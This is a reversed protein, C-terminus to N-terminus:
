QFLRKIYQYVYSPYSNWNRKPELEPPIHEVVLPTVGLEAEVEKFSPYIVHTFFSYDSPVYSELMIGHVCLLAWVKKYQAYIDDRHNRDIWESEDVYQVNPLHIEKLLDKHFDVVSNGFKTTIEHLPKGNNRNFDILTFYEIIDDKNGSVGKLVPLKGLPLKLENNTSFKSKYDEGVVLPLDYQKVMEAVHLLEFNPTAIFRQLYFIPTKGIFHEPVDGGLYTKVKEILAPDARRKKVESVAERLPTFILQSLREVEFAPVNRERSAHITVAKKRKPNEM